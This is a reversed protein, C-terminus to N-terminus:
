PRGPWCACPQGWRMPSATSTWSQVQEGCAMRGIACPPAMPSILVNSRALPRSKSIVTNASPDSLAHRESSVDACRPEGNRRATRRLCCAQPTEYFNAVPGIPCSTIASDPSNTGTTATRSRTPQIRRPGGYSRCDRQASRPVRGMGLSHRDGRLPWLIPENSPVAFKPGTRRPAGPRRCRQRLRATVRPRRPAGYGMVWSRHVRRRLPGPRRLNKWAVRGHRACTEYRRVQRATATNM